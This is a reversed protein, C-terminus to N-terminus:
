FPAFITIFIKTDTIMTYLRKIGTGLTGSVQGSYFVAPQIIQLVMVM